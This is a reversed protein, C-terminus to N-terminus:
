EKNLKHRTGNEVTQVKYMVMKEKWESWIKTPPSLNRWGKNLKRWDTWLHLFIVMETNRIIKYKDRWM